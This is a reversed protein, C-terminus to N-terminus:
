KLNISDSLLVLKSIFLNVIIKLESSLEDLFYTKFENCTTNLIFNYDLVFRFRSINSSKKIDGVFAFMLFFIVSTM